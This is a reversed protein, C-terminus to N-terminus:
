DSTHVGLSKRMKAMARDLHRQVTSPNIGLMEAAETRTWGFGHCLMVVTRQQRSLQNLAAPLGPEYWPQAADVLTPLVAPRRRYRRSRSQGVRYLYGGPNDMARIREWNEWAYELADATAETGVEPGYASILAHRLRGGVQDVFAAFEDATDREM